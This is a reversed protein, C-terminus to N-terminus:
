FKQKMVNLNFYQLYQLESIEICDQHFVKSWKESDLYM